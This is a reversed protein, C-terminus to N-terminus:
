RTCRADADAHLALLLLIRMCGGADAARARTERHRETEREVHLRGCRGCAGQALVSGPSTAAMECWCLGVRRRRWAVGWSYVAGSFDVVRWCMGGQGAM